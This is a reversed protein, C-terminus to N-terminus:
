RGDLRLGVGGGVSRQGEALFTVGSRQLADVIAAVTTAQVTMGSEFRKVSASGIRAAAALEAATM